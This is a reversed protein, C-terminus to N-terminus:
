GNKNRADGDGMFKNIIKELVKKDTDSAGEFVFRVYHVLEAKSKEKEPM